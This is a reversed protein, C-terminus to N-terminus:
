GQRVLSEEDMMYQNLREMWADREEEPAFLFFSGTSRQIAMLDILFDYVANAAQQNAVLAQNQADILDIISKIGRVYSDTVLTLNRLASDAADTSLQISPYSARILHVANLIRAEIRNAINGRDYRLQSLEEQSRKLTASRSGGTYLPLTAQVGATWDTDDKEPLNIAGISPSGSGEGSKSFTETVDGFLSVTPVWFERKALTISREQAAIAAEIQQLEPSADLGEAVLFDRLIGLEMPNGMYNTLRRDPLINMPEQYDAEEPAFMERLPRNLINNMTSITDLTVSQAKLVTRRSDAIQSEWRYVEEPGGAGIEVRIRARELNERTLKLNEKQIREISKARLVNLYASAAAQLIDLRVADRGQERSTQLYQEITYGAWAKDSYILQTAQLSGTWLREPQIGFSARARDDDIMSAQTNVGVQPLLPSRAEQVQAMGAEVSRNAAALDLNAALAEKMALNINLRRETGIAEDNLLDAETLLGWGPYVHIARATAMNIALKEGVAFTTSLDGANTGDLTEQVNIAVSRALHLLTDEPITSVLIGSEVDTRGRFSFSPIRREILGAVLKQFEEEPLRPLLLLLVADTDAPISALAQEGSNDVPVVTIELTFEYSMRRAITNLQPIADRMFGDEVLAVRSFPAIDRFVQLARDFDSFFNIYNLNRIGSTGAKAPIGQLKADVVYVAFVPKSFSRRRCVEHTSVEGLTLVMDVKSSAILRDLAQNIQKVNWDGSIQAEAPFTVTHVGRTMSQIENFFLDRVASFQESDGDYVMGIRVTKAQVFSSFILTLGILGLALALRRKM